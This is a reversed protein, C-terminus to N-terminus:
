LESLIAVGFVFIFYLIMFVAIVGWTIYTAKIWKDSDKKAKRAMELNGQAVYDKVKNGEILALIAFVAGIIGGCCLASFIILFIAHGSSFTPIDSNSNVPETKVEQVKVEEKVEEVKVEENKLKTNCNQCFEQNDDNLTGCNHCYM